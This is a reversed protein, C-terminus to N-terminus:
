DGPDEKASQAEEPILGHDLPHVRVLHLRDLAKRPKKLSQPSQGSNISELPRPRAKAHRIRFRKKQLSRSQMISAALM